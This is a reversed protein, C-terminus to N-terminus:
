GGSAAMLANNITTSFMASALHRTKLAKPNPVGIAPPAIQRGFRFLTSFVGSIKFIQV